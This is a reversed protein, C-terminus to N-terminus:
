YGYGRLEDHESGGRLRAGNPVSLVQDVAIGAEVLAAADWEGETIFVVASGIARELNFFQLKGGKKGIFAKTPFAVAKWNVVEGGRRYPFFIAESRQDLDPFFEMGSGAGLRELTARSIKRVTEAYTVAAASLHQFEAPGTATGATSSQGMM